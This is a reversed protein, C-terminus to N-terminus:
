LRDELNSNEFQNHIIIIILGFLVASVILGSNIIGSVTFSMRILITSVIFGSNRIIKHFKDTYFFSVLLMVVDVLILITFFDDFFLNNINQLSIDNAQAGITDISWTILVYVATIGFLPVLVSAIAKKIKVYRAVQTQEMKDVDINKKGLKQFWFIMFFLILSAVLDYTFQLDAKDEFWDKTLHLSSLDKFLRRIIILTIIEYQKVVYTTISKPLFFILMYVEYILIFSFPTYIASIFNDLLTFEAPAEFWNLKIAAILALHVIFGAIAIFLISHEIRARSRESFFFNYIKDLANLFM